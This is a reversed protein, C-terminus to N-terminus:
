REEGKKNVYEVYAGDSFGTEYKKRGYYKVAEIIIGTIIVEGLVELYKNM